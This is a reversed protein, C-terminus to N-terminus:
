PDFGVLVARSADDPWPVDALLTWASVARRYVSVSATDGTEALWAVALTSGTRDLLVQGPVRPAGTDLPLVDFARGALFATTPGTAVGGIPGPGTTVVLEGDGSVTVEGGAARLHTVSGTALDVVATMRADLRDRLSIAVRGDGIWAPPRGDVIGGLEIARASGTTREVVILRADAAGSAPDGAVCAIRTGDPSLIGFSPPGIRAAGSAADVVVERWPQSSGGPASGRTFLRGKSGVSVVLGRSRDGSAWRIDGPSVDPGPEEVVAPVGVPGAVAPWSVALVRMAGPRGVLLHLGLAPQNATPTTSELPPPTREVADCSALCVAAATIAVLVVVAARISATPPGSKM